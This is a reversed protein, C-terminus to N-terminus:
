WLADGVVSTLNSSTLLNGTHLSFLIVTMCSLILYYFPIDVAAMGCWYASPVLGSIRLTARCKIQAPSVRGVCSQHSFILLIRKRRGRQAIQSSGKEKKGRLPESRPSVSGREHGSPAATSRMLRTVM